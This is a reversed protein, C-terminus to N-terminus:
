MPATLLDALGGGIAAAVLAYPTPLLVAALYILSDGFHSYGGNVGVPIHAIYATMITIMAAFLGTVAMYKVGSVQTINKQVQTKGTEKVVQGTM